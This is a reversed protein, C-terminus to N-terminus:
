LGADEEDMLGEDDKKTIKKGKQPNAVSVSLVPHEQDEWKILSFRVGTGAEAAKAFVEAVPAFYEGTVSTGYKFKAGKPINEKDAFMSGVRVFESKKKQGFKRFGM